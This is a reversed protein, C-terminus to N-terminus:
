LFRHTQELDQRAQQRAPKTGTSVEGVATDGDPMEERPLAAAGLEREHDTRRPPAGGLPPPEQGPDVAVILGRAGARRHPSPSGTPAAGPPAGNGVAERLN